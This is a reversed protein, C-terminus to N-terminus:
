LSKELLETRHRELLVLMFMKAM